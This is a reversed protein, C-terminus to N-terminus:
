SLKGRHTKVILAIIKGLANKEIASLTDRRNKKYITFLYIPMSEDHYYDIIRVGGRKGSHEDSQWRIKRAGGTGIIVKGATPNAAIHNIFDIKCAEEICHSAQTHFEPTEVVSQLIIGHEM